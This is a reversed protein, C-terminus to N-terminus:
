GPAACGQRTTRIDKLLAEAEEHDTLFFDFGDLVTNAPGTFAGRSGVFVIYFGEADIMTAGTVKRWDVSWPRWDGDGNFEFRSVCPEDVWARISGGPNTPASTRAWTDKAKLFDGPKAQAPTSVALALVSLAFAPCKM